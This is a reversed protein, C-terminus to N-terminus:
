RKNIRRKVVKMAFLMAFSLIITKIEYVYENIM